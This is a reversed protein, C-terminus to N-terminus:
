CTAISVFLVQGFLVQDVSERWIPSMGRRSSSRAYETVKLLGIHRSVAACGARNIAPSGEFSRVALVVRGVDVCRRSARVLATIVGSLICIPHNGLNGAAGSPCQFGKGQM